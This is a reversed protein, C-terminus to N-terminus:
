SHLYTAESTSALNIELRERHIALELDKPISSALLDLAATYLDAAGYSPSNKTRYGISLALVNDVLQNDKYIEYGGSTQNLVWGILNCIAISRAERELIAERICCFVQPQARYQGNSEIYFSLNFYLRKWTFQSIQHEACWNLLRHLCQTHTLEICKAEFPADHFNIETRSSINISIM